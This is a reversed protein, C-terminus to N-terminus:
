RSSSPKINTKEASKENDEGLVKTFVESLVSKLVDNVIDSSRPASKPFIDYAEEKRNNNVDGEGVLPHKCIMHVSLAQKNKFFGECEECQLFTERSNIVNPIPVEVRDSRHFITKTFNFAALTKQDANGNSKLKKPPGM